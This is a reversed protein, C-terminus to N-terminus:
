RRAPSARGGDTRLITENSPPPLCPATAFTCRITRREGEPGESKCEEIIPRSFLRLTKFDDQAVKSWNWGYKKGVEWVWRQKVDAQLSAQIQSSGSPSLDPSLSVDGSMEVSTDKCTLQRLRCAGLTVICDKSGCTTGADENYRKAVDWDAWDAGFRKKAESQWPGKALGAVADWNTYDGSKEYPVTVSIGPRWCDATHRSVLNPSEEVYKSPNGGLGSGFQQGLQAYVGALPVSAALLSTLVLLVISWRAGNKLWVDFPLVKDAQHKGWEAIQRATDDIVSKSKYYYCHAFERMWWAEPAIFVRVLRSNENARRSTSIQNALTWAFKEGGFAIGTGRLWTSLVYIFSVIILMVPMLLFFTIFLVSLLAAPYYWAVDYKNTFDSLRMLPISSDLTKALLRPPTIAGDVLAIFGNQHAHDASFASIGAWDLLGRQAFVQLVMELVVIGGLVIGFALLSVATQGLTQVLWTLFGFIRLGIGPEDGPTTYNLYKVPKDARPDYKKPLKQRLGDVDMKLWLLVGGPVAFIWFAATLALLLWGYAFQFHPDAVPLARLLPELGGRYWAAYFVAAAIITAYKITKVVASAALILPTKGAHNEASDLLKPLYWGFVAYLPAPWIICAGVRLIEPTKAWVMAWADHPARIGLVQYAFGFAVALLALSVFRFIWAALRATLIGAPRDEFRVFPSGFTIIGDPRRQQCPGVRGNREKKCHECQDDHKFELDGAPDYYDYDKDWLSMALRSVTGGHSHGIVYVGDYYGPGHLAQKENLEHDIAKKLGIAALRREEHSNGGSWNYQTHDAEDLDIGHEKLAASLRRVFLKDDAHLRNESAAAWNDWDAENAFTGHVTFLKIRRQPRPEEDVPSENGDMLPALNHPRYEIIRSSKEGHEVVQRGYRELVSPHVMENVAVEGEAVQCTRWGGFMNRRWTPIAEIAQKVLRINPLLRDLLFRPTTPPLHQPGLADPRTSSALKTSDFALGTVAHVREIMWHLSIDSLATERYGGGVDAHCGAFWVQEIVQATDLPATISRTWLTPRFPARYEDISLAHFGADIADSLRTDHFKLRRGIWGGSYFPNGINGVTDWVGVCKIRVPYATLSRIEDLDATTRQEPPASYISWAKEFPFSAADKPVGFLVIFSALSRAEFAGRSFGFIYIEDGSRWREALERYGSAIRQGVGIGLAGKLFRWRLDDESNIGAVYVAAQEIGREDWPLVLTHLKAINTGSPSTDYKNWTGDLCLAIRKM